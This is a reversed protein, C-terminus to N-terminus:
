WAEWTHKLSADQVAVLTLTTMGFHTLSPLFYIYKHYIRVHAESLEQLLISRPLYQGQPLTIFSNIGRFTEKQPM